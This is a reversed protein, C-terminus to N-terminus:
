GKQGLLDSSSACDMFSPPLNFCNLTICGNLHCFFSSIFTSLTHVEPHPASSCHQPGNSPCQSLVAGMCFIFVCSAGACRQEATLPFGLLRQWKSINILYKEPINLLRLKAYMQSLTKFWLPDAADGLEAPSPM